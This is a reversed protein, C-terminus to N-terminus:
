LTTKDKYSDPLKALFKLHNGLNNAGLCLRVHAAKENVIAAAVVQIGRELLVLGLVTERGIVVFLGLRRFVRIRARGAWFLWPTRRRIPGRSLRVSISRCGFSSSLLLKKASCCM